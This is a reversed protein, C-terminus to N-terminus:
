QLKAYAALILRVRHRFIGIALSRSFKNNNEESLLFAKVKLMENKAGVFCTANDSYIDKPKGRRAAFRKIAKLCCETTLETVLELHVAKTVFCVFVAVYSKVSKTNRFKKEKILFPGCYDLGVKEFPRRQEVRSKPLNGMVYNPIKPDLKCCRVCKSIINRVTNKGNILWYNQRVANLTFQAGAHWNKIHENQVILKTLFNDRPILIPCKKSYTIPANGLRGGVRIIGNQDLFTNLKFIESKPNISMGEQFNKIERPYHSSQVVKILQIHAKQLEDSTYNGTIKSISRRNIVARHCFTIFRILSTLSSFRELTDNKIQKSQIITAALVINVRREPIEINSLQLAKWDQENKLLWSPGHLWLKNKIFESPTQGRSIFDAPNEETAIHQWKFNETLTQIEAVRNAIFTKLLHPPTKIWHLTITSDSWLYIDKFELKLSETVEQILQSLLLAACLELRPITTTKIPAVRSKACILQVSCNNDKDVSRLYVSAGYARQSADAFGHLQLNIANSLMIKRPVKFKKIIQLETKFNIWATSVDQPITEDWELQLKWLDQM